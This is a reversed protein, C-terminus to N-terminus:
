PTHTLRYTALDHGGPGSRKIGYGAKVLLGIRQSYSSCRFGHRGDMFEAGSHERGDMLVALILAKKSRTVCDDLTMQASM